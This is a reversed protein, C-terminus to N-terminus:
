MQSLLGLVVAVAMIGAAAVLILGGLLGGVFARGASGNRGARIGAGAFTLSLVILTVSMVALASVTIAISQSGRAVFLSFAAVAGSAVLAVVVAVRLPTVAGM